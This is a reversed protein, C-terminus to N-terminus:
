RLTGSFVPQFFFVRVLIVVTLVVLFMPRINQASSTFIYNLRVHSWFVIELTLLLLFQLFSPSQYNRGVRVSYLLLVIVGGIYILLFIIIFFYDVEKLSIMCIFGTMLIVGTVKYIFNRLSLLIIRVRVSGVCLYKKGAFYIKKKFYPESVLHKLM